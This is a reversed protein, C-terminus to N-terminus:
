NQVFITIIGVLLVRHSLNTHACKKKNILMIVINGILGRVVCIKVVM